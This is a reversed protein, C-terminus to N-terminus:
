VVASLGTVRINLERLSPDGGRLATDMENATPNDGETGCVARIPATNVDDRHAEGGIMIVALVEDTGDMQVAHDWIFGRILAEGAMGAQDFPQWVGMVAAMPTGIPLLRAVTFDDDAKVPCVKTGFQDPTIRPTAVRTNAASLLENENQAM